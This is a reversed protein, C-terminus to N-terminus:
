YKGRFLVPEKGELDGRRDIHIFTQYVGVSWGLDLALKVMERRQKGGTVALDIAMTGNRQPHETLHYSNPSGGVAKNHKPTRCCSNVFLPKGYTRRYTLLEREFRPDLNVTGDDKSALEGKSFYQYLGKDSMKSTRVNM